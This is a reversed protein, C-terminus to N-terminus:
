SRDKLISYRQKLIRFLATMEVNVDHMGGTFHSLLQIQQYHDLIKDTPLTPLHEYYNVLRFQLNEKIISVTLYNRTYSTNTSLSKLDCVQLLHLYIALKMM